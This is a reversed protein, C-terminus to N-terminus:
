LQYSKWEELATVSVERIVAELDCEYLGACSFSGIELLYYNGGKTRCIDVTWVKDPEYLQAVEEALHWATGQAAPYRLSSGECQYLSGAVVKKNAVVFRWETTVNRPEAVVCLEDAQVNYFDLKDVEKEYSELYLLTGTFSKAGSNPRIFLADDIGLTNFLFDKKRKLEGYPIMIYQENLLYKGLAPYYNTCQFAKLNCHVGPVWYPMERKIMAATALSGYFVVCDTEGFLKKWDKEEDGHRFSAIECRMGQREVEEAIRKQDDFANNDILWNVTM